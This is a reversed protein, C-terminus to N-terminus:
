RCIHFSADFENQLDYISLDKAWLGFSCFFMYHLMHDRFLITNGILGNSPGSM